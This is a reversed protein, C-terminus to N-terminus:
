INWYLHFANRSSITSNKLHHTIAHSIGRKDKIDESYDAAPNNKLGLQPIPDFPEKRLLRRPSQSNGFKISLDMPVETSTAMKAHEGDWIWWIMWWYTKNHSLSGGSGFILNEWTQAISYLRDRIRTPTENEQDKQDLYTCDMDDVFFEAVQNELYQKCVSFM